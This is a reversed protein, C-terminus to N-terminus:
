RKHQSFYIECPGLFQGLFGPPLTACQSAYAAVARRKQARVAGICLRRAGALDRPFLRLFLPASWLMWISYQVLDANLNARQVATSAIEWAAEHDPHHDHRHPVYIEQPRHKIFLRSLRAVAMKRQAEKRLSADALDLFTVCSGEVDLIHLAALAERRRTQVFHQHSWEPNKQPAAAGDTLFVIQVQVGAARKLAILGGCGLTEDDQHPAVVMTTQGTLTMRSSGFYQLWCRVLFVHFQRCRAFVRLAAQM